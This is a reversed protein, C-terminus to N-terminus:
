NLFFPILLIFIKHIPKCLLKGICKLRYLSYKLASKLMNRNFFIYHFAYNMSVFAHKRFHHYLVLPEHVSFGFKQKDIQKTQRDIYARTRMFIRRIVEFQCITNLDVIAHKTNFTTHIFNFTRTCLCVFTSLSM